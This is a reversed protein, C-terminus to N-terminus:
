PQPLVWFSSIQLHNQVTLAIREGPRVPIPDLAFGQRSGLPRLMVQLPEAGTTYSRPLRLTRRSMSRVEGLRVRTGYRVIYVIVDSWNNNEVELTVQGDVRRAPERSIRTSGSTACGSAMMLIAAPLVLSKLTNM